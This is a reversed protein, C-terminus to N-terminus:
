NECKVEKTIILEKSEKHEIVSCRGFLEDEYLSVFSFETLLQALESDKSGSTAYFPNSSEQTNGM